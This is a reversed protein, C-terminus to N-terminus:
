PGFPLAQLLVAVALVIMGLQLMNTIQDSPWGAQRALILPYVMFISVVGLHQVASIWTVVAPPTEEGGYTLAPPKKKPASASPISWFALRRTRAPPPMPTMIDMPPSPPYLSRPLMVGPRGPKWPRQTEVPLAAATM